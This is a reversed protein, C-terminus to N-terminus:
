LTVSKCRDNYIKNFTKFKRNLVIPYGEYLYKYIIFFNNNSNWTHRKKIASGVYSLYFLSSNGSRKELRIKTDTCGLSIFINKLKSIFDHTGIITMWWRNKKKNYSISGDGDFYGRVFHRLLSEPVQELTPFKLTLSKRPGLGLIEFQNILEKNNIMLRVARKGESYIPYNSKLSKRLKRLHTIDIRALAIQFVSKSNQNNRYINGDAYIFGLWYAKEESNIKSFFNKDFSYHSKSESFSRIKVGWIVLYKKIAGRSAKYKKALKKLTSGNLYDEIIFNKCLMWKKM